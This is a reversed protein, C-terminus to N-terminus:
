SVAIGWKRGLYTAVRNRENDSLSTSFLVVEAVRDQWYATAGVADGIAFRTFQKNLTHSYTAPTGNNLRNSIQSGSHQSSFLMWTSSSVGVSARQSSSAWSALALEQNTRLLPIYHGSTSFDTSADSQSFLRAFATGVGATSFGFRNVVFLTQATLTITSSLTLSDGGDFGLASLQNTAASLFTPAVSDAGTQIMHRGNGSKDAAFKVPGNNTVTGRGSSTPGLTGIDSFDWWGVLGAIMRPTFQSPVLM